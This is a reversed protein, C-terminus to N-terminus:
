AAELDDECCYPEFHSFVLRYVTFVAPSIDAVYCRMFREQSVLDSMAALEEQAKKMNLRLENASHQTFDTLFIHWEKTSDTAAKTFELVAITFEILAICQMVSEQLSEADALKVRAELVKRHAALIETQFHQLNMHNDFADQTDAATNTANYEYKM